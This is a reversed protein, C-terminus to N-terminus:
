GRCECRRARVVCCFGTLDWWDYLVLRRSRLSHVVILAPSLLIRLWMRRYGAHDIDFGQARAIGAIEEPAFTRVHTPDDFFNLGFGRLPFHRSKESPWELYLYGGPKVKDCLRAVLRRGDELHELTHSSVVYDYAGDPSGALDSRNLDTRHYVDFGSARADGIDAINYGEFRCDAFLAKAIRADDKGAGADLIRVAKGFFDGPLWAYRPNLRRRLWATM